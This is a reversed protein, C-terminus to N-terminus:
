GWGKTIGVLGLLAEPRDRFHDFIRRAVECNKRIIECEGDGCVANVAPCGGGCLPLADCKKCKARHPSSNSWTRGSVRWSEPEDYIHGLINEANKLLLCGQVVGGPTIGFSHLGAGCFRKRARKTLLQFVRSTFRSDRPRCGSELDEIVIRGLLELHSMYDNLEDPDLSFANGEQTRISQAKIADVSLSRLYDNADSLSWGSRVVSSGWITCQTKTRLTDLFRMVKSHTPLGNRDIRCENHIEQPGDISLIVHFNGKDLIEFAEHNLITGNTTISFAFRGAPMHTARQVMAQISPLNLLPEGGYLHICVTEVDSFARDLSEVLRHALDPNM